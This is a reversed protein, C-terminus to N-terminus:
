INSNRLTRDVTGEKENLVIKRSSLVLHVSVLMRPICLNVARGGFEKAQEVYIINMIELANRM